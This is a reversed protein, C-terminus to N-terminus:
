EPRAAGWRGPCRRWPRRRVRRSRREVSTAGASTRLVSTSEAAHESCCGGAPALAAATVVASGLAGRGVVVGGAGVVAGGAGVVVGAAGVGGGVAAGVVGVVGASCGSLPPGTRATFISLM